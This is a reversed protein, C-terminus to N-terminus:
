DDCFPLFVIKEASVLHNQMRVARDIEELLMCAETQRLHNRVLVDVIERAAKKVNEPVQNTPEEYVERNM